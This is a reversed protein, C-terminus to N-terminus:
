PHRGNRRHTQQSGRRRHLRRLWRRRLQIGRRRLGGALLWRWQPHRGYRRHTQQSGMGGTSGSFKANGYSFVGGDSAVMWYGGGNPTAATSVIPKNLAAHAIDERYVALSLPADTLPIVDTEAPQYFYSNYIFDHNDIFSAIGEVYTPDDGAGGRAGVPVVGWEAISMPKGNAAAFAALASLGDPENYLQQWREDPTLDTQDIGSDYADMGIIDVVNNGPYWEDFPIPEYYENVTWDFLFDAGPVARMATVINAWYEAWDGYQTPDTGLSNDAESPIDNAEWGLRIISDGLGESVLNTALQTAYGDYAGEAGLVRWDSPAADPVMTALSLGAVMPVATKWQIWNMDPSPPHAWWVNM